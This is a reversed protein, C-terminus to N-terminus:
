GFDDDHAVKGARHAIRDYEPGSRQIPVRGAAELFLPGSNVGAAVTHKEAIAMGRGHRGAVPHVATRQISGCELQVTSISLIIRVKTSNRLLM